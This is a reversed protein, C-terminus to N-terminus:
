SRFLHLLLPARFCKVLTHKVFKVQEMALWDIGYFFDHKKVSSAGQAGLRQEPDKTLFGRVAERSDKSLEKDAPFFVDKKIIDRFLTTQSGGYFPSKGVLMVYLVIGLAWWDVAVTYPLSQLLEPALFSPTGCWTLTGM